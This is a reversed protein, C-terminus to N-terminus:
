RGMMGGGSRLAQIYALIRPDIQGGMGGMQAQAPPGAMNPPPPPPMINPPIMPGGMGGMMPGAGMSPGMGGMMAMRPDFM